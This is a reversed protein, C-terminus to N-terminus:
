LVFYCLLLYVGLLGRNLSCSLAFGLDILSVWCFLDVKCCCVIFWCCLSCGGWELFCKYGGM